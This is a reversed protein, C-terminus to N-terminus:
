KTMRKIEEILVIRPAVTAKTINTIQTIAIFGCVILGCLFTVILLAYGDKTTLDIADKPPNKADKFMQNLERILYVLILGLLCTITLSVVSSWFYWNIIEQAVLPAQTVVFDKTETATTSVFDLVQNIRDQTLDQM